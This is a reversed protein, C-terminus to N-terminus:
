PNERFATVPRASALAKLHDNCLEIQKFPRGQSNLARVITTAARSCGRGRRATYECPLSVVQPADLWAQAVMM